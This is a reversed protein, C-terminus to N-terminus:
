RIDDNNKESSYNDNLKYALPEINYSGSMDLNFLNWKCAYKHQM